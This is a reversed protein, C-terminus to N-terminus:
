PAAYTCAGPLPTQKDGLCVYTMDEPIIDFTSGNYLGMTYANEVAIDWWKQMNEPTHGEETQVLNLADEWAQDVVFNNTKTGDMNAYSFGHLWVTAMESGAMMGFDLDWATPDATTSRYSSMDLSKVECKIGAAQLQASIINPTEGSNSACVLTLTEGNYGAKELYGKVQDMDVGTRTNYNDMAAYDIWNADYFASYYSVYGYIRKETGGLATILGDQDIANLVALRMNIDNLPSAPDCNPNLYYVFKASYQYTNYKDAFEGGDAFEPVSAAPMEHVFDVDGTKLAVVRQATEDIFKYNIVRVNAQQEQRPTMGAKLQWYDENREITLVSGSTYSKMKYPGTGIMENALKSASGTHAKESVIFCRAFINLLQGVGNQEKAFEFVVTTDDEATVSILDQWGSTTENEYQYMYSYAVDSATVHNGAHDYICDYIKVKYIGSGAEHDCGAMYTGEYTADALLPYMEGNPDCEYLMEYVSYNGPTGNNTGWPTLSTATKDAITIEDKIYTNDINETNELNEQNEKEQELTDGLSDSPQTDPTDANDKNGCAVLAFVMTLALLLALLKKM